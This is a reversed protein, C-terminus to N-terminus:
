AFGILISLSFLFQMNLMVGTLTRRRIYSCQRIVSAGHTECSRKSRGTVFLGSRSCYRLEGRTPGAASPM